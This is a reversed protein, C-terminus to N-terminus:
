ESLARIWASMTWTAIDHKSQLAKMIVHDITRQGNPGTAIVDFYSVRNVQGPRHVRDESQLRTKLSFDNSMYVVTHAATLNLGMSGTSPTGVVVARSRPATRPDLMRLAEDRDAAKQGGYLVGTLVNRAKLERVVREVEPRFRCWVLLKLDPDEELMLDFWALFLDLKERSVDRLEPAGEVSEERTRLHEPEQAFPLWEPRDAPMAQERVGGIFGSTLQALRIAKVIAQSAMSMSAQNLWVVMEDRMEKYLTWTETSLPVTLAVSPLKEPLDLCDVKLRRLVFPAFRRQLDELNTWGVIQKAKYGGMIAYRARFHIFTRCALVGPHMLEGQSYMDGPSNAIPTGNLLIVRGCKARLARCAKTQKARHSKVASSEDLVLATRANCLALLPKLRDVPRIFEYNSIIWELKKSPAETAGAALWFWTKAKAHYLTVACAVDMWLHKALEGLEQDFWVSRVAAPALVIVRDIKDAVYLALLADIVQKTKGAGMEDALFFFPMTCLREVGLLQHDYPKIRARAKVLEVHTM